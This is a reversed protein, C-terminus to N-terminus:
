PTRGEAKALAAVSRKHSEELLCEDHETGADSEYALVLLKLADFLEPAAAILRANAYATEKSIEHAFGSCDNHDATAIALAFGDRDYTEDISGGSGRAEHEIPVITDPFGKLVAWPGPTFAPKSM